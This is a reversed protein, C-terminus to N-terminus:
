EYAWGEFFTLLVFLLPNNSIRSLVFALSSAATTPASGAGSRLACSSRDPAGPVVACWGCTAIVVAQRKGRQGTREPASNYNGHYCDEVWECVNGATDYLGFPNPKLSGVPATQKVMGNVVAVM